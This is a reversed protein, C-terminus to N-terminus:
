SFKNSIFNIIKDVQDNIELDSTDLIFADDAVMLPSDKRTSDQIDRDELNKIVDSYTIDPNKSKMENFRRKARVQIDATMFVKIEADPFVVTTIDRGEVVINKNIGFTKQKNVLFKRISSNSSFLSVQNSIEDSRIENEVDQDNLFIHQNDEVYKFDIIINNLEDKIKKTDNQSVGKNVFYLTVARYMAGSDLYKFNLNKALLRSTTSKGCGSHGDIAIIIDKIM